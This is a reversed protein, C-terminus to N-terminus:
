RMPLLQYSGQIGAEANRVKFGVAAEMNGFGLEFRREPQETIGDYTLIINVAADRVMAMILRTQFGFMTFNAPYDDDPFGAFVGYEFTVPGLLDWEWERIRVEPRPSPFSWFPTYGGTPFAIGRYGFFTGAM